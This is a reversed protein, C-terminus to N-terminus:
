QPEVHFLQEAVKLGLETLRCCERGAFYVREVLGLDILEQLDAESEAETVAQEQLRRMGM